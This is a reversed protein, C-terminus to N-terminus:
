LDIFEMTLSAVREKKRLRLQEVCLSNLNVTFPQLNSTQFVFTLKDQKMFEKSIPFVFNM